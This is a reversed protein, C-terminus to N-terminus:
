VVTLQWMKTQPIYTSINWKMIECVGSYTTVNQNVGSYTPVNQNVGSYTTANQNVGSYTTVNQNVGSLQWM